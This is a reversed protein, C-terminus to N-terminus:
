SLPHTIRSKTKHGTVCGDHRAWRDVPPHKTGEPSGFMRTALIDNRGHSRASGTPSPPVPERPDQWNPAPGYGGGQWGPKAQEWYDRHYPRVDTTAYRDGESTEGYGSGSSYDPRYVNSRYAHTEDRFSPASRPPNYSDYGRRSTTPSPTRHLGPAAPPRQILFPSWIQM